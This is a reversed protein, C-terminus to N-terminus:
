AFGKMGMDLMNEFGMCCCCCRGADEEADEKPKGEAKTGDNDCDCVICGLKGGVNCSGSAGVGVTTEVDGVCDVTVTRKLKM